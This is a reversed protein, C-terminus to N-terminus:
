MLGRKRSYVVTGGEVRRKVVNGAEELYALAAKVTELSEETFPFTLWWRRIGEVSDAAEPHLEFYREIESAIKSARDGADKVM